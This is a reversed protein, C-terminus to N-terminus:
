WSAYGYDYEIPGQRRVDDDPHDGLDRTLIPKFEDIIQTSVYQADGIGSITGVLRPPQGGGAKWLALYYRIQISSPPTGVYEGVGQVVFIRTKMNKPLEVVLQLEILEGIRLGATNRLSMASQAGSYEEIRKCLYEAPTTSGSTKVTEIFCVGVHGGWWADSEPYRPKNSPVANMRTSSETAPSALPATEPLDDTRSLNESLKKSFSQFAKEMLPWIEEAFFKIGHGLMVIIGLFVLVYEGPITIMEPKKETTSVAEAIPLALAFLPNM